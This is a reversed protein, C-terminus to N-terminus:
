SKRAVAYIANTEISRVNQRALSDLTKLRV